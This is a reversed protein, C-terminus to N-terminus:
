EIEKDKISLLRQKAEKIGKNFDSTDVLINAYENTWKISYEYYNSYLKLLYEDERKTTWDTDYKRSLKLM